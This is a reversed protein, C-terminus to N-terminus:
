RKWKNLGKTNEKIIDNINYWGEEYAKVEDLLLTQSGNYDQLYKEQNATLVAVVEGGNNILEDIKQNANQQNAYISKLSDGNQIAVGIVVRKASENYYMPWPKEQYYASYEDVYIQTGSQLGDIVTGLHINTSNEVENQNDLTQYNKVESEVKKTETEKEVKETSPQYSSAYNMQEANNNEERSINDVKEIMNSNETAYTEQVNQVEVNESFPKETEESKVNTNLTEPLNEQVESKNIDYGNNTTLETKLVPEIEQTDSINSGEIIIIPDETEIPNSITNETKYQRNVDNTSKKNKSTLGFTMLALASALILTGAVVKKKMNSSSKRINIINKAKDKITSFLSEKNEVDYAYSTIEEPSILEETQLMSESAVDSSVFELEPEELYIPENNPEQVDSTTEKSEQEVESLKQLIEDMNTPNAINPQSNEKPTNLRTTFSNMQESFKKSGDNLENLIEELKDDDEKEEQNSSSAFFNNLAEELNPNIVTDRSVEEQNVVPYTKKDIDDKGPTSIPEQEVLSLQKLIEDMANSGNKNQEENKPSFISFKNSTNEQDLNIEELGIDTLKIPPKIGLSEFRETELEELEKLSSDEDFYQETKDISVPTVISKHGSIEFIDEAEKEEENTMEEDLYFNDIQKNVRDLQGMLNGFKGRLRRPVRYKQGAFMTFQGRGKENELIDKVQSQLREQETKLNEIEQDIPDLETKSVQEELELNELEQKTGKTLEDVQDEELYDEIIPVNKPIQSNRYQESLERALERQKKSLDYYKGVVSPHLMIKRNDFTNTEIFGHQTLIEHKNSKENSDIKPQLSKSYNKIKKLEERNEEFQEELTKESVVENQPQQASAWNNIRGQLEVYLADIAELDELDKETKFPKREIKKKEENLITFEEKINELIEKM